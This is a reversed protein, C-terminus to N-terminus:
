CMAARILCGHKSIAEKVLQMAQMGKQEGGADRAVQM